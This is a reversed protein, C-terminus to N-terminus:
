VEYRSYYSLMCPQIAIIQVLGLNHILILFQQYCHVSFTWGLLSNAFV